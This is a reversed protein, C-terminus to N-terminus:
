ARMIPNAGSPRGEWAGEKGGMPGSRRSLAKPRGDGSFVDAKEPRVSRRNGGFRAGMEREVFVGGVEPRDRAGLRALDLNWFDAAQVVAVEALGRLGWGTRLPGCWSRAM